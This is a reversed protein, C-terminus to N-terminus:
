NTNFNYEIINKLKSCDLKTDGIQEDNIISLHFEDIVPAFINYISAGGCIWIKKNTTTANLIAKSIAEFPTNYNKGIVICDRGPLPNCKFDNEFTTRGVILIGGITTNKFHKFDDPSKWMLKGNKGIYGHKNVAAIGHLKM